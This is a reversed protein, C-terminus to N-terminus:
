PLRKIKILEGVGGSSEATWSTETADSATITTSAVVTNNNVVMTGASGGSGTLNATITTGAVVGSGTLVDGVEFTGTATGITLVGHTATITTSAVAAPQLVDILYTGVGNTTGTLQRVVKPSGVIGTGSLTAGPYTPNTAVTVTLVDGNISGTFTGSGAAIDSGTASAGGAVTGAAAFKAKGNAHIAYAKMGRTAIAAGDNVVWLDGATMITCYQGPLIKMGAFALYDVITAQLERHVVGAPAGNGYSNALQGTGNPDLPATVWAFRGVYLSDGAYLGGPGANFTYYPNMSAFDGAVAPAPQSYVQQQFGGSM